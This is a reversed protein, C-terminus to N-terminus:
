LGHQPNNCFVATIDWGDNGVAYVAWGCHIRDRSKLSSVAQLDGTHGILSGPILHHLGVFRGDYIDAFGFGDFYEKFRPLYEATAFSARVEVKGLTHQNIQSVVMQCNRNRDVSTHQICLGCCRQLSELNKSIKRFGALKVPFGPLMKRLLECKIGMM